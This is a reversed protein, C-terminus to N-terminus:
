DETQMKRPRYIEYDPLSLSIIWFEVQQNTEVLKAWINLVTKYHRDLNDANEISLPCRTDKLLTLEGGIFVPFFPYSKCDLPKFNAQANCQSQDIRSPDCFGLKGSLHNAILRIHQKRENNQSEWEGPYLLLSNCPNPSEEYLPLQQKCCHYDCNYAYSRCAIIAGSNETSFTSSLSALNKTM